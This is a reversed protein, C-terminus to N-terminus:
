PCQNTKCYETMLEEFVLEFKEVLAPSGSANFRLIEDEDLSDIFQKNIVIGNELYQDLTYHGLYNANKLKHFLDNFDAMSEQTYSKTLSNSYLDEVLSYNKIDLETAITYFAKDTIALRAKKLFVIESERKKIMTNITELNM